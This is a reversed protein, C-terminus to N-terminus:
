QTIKKSNLYTPLLQSYMFNILYPSEFTLLQEM